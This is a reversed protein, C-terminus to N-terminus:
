VIIRTSRFVSLTSCAVVSTCVRRNSRRQDVVGVPVRPYARGRRASSQRLEFVLALEGGFRGHAGDVAADSGNSGRAGQVRINASNAARGSTTDAM